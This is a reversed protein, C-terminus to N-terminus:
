RFLGPQLTDAVLFTDLEEQDYFAREFFLGQAPATYQKLIVPKQLFKQVEAIALEGKGVAVLVGVIRRVMKWLFHSGVIRFLILDETAMIQCSTVMVQPSKKKV